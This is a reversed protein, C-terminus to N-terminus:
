FGLCTEGSVNLKKSFEGFKWELRAVGLYDRSLVLRTKKERIEKEGRKRRRKESWKNRLRVFASAVLVESVTIFIERAKAM